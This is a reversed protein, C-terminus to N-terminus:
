QIVIKNVSVLIQESYLKLIYIGKSKSSVDIETKNGNIISTYIENGIVDYLKVGNNVSSLRYNIEITFKGTGPNPYVNCSNILQNRSM